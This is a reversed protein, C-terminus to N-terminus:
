GVTSELRNCFSLLLLLIVTGLYDLLKPLFLFLTYAIKQEGVLGIVLKSESGSDNPLPVRTPPSENM